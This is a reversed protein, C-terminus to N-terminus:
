AQQHFYIDAYRCDGFAKAMPHNMYDSHEKSMFKLTMDIDIIERTRNFKDMDRILDAAPKNAYDRIDPFDSGWDYFKGFSYHDAPRCTKMYVREGEDVIIEDIVRGNFAPDFNASTITGDKQDYSYMMYCEGGVYPDEQVDAGIHLITGCGPCILVIEKSNKIANDIKESPIFHVRGCKCIRLDYRTTESM